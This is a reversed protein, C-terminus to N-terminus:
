SNISFFSNVWHMYLEKMTIGVFSFIEQSRKLISILIREVDYQDNAGIEGTYYVIRHLQNVKHSTDKLYTMYMKLQSNRRDNRNELCLDRNRKSERQRCHDLKM